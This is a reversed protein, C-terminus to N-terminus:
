SGSRKKVMGTVYTSYEKGTPAIWFTVKVLGRDKEEYILKYRPADPVPDSEFQASHTGTSISYHIVHGEPDTFLARHTGGERDVIMLDDHVIGESEGPKPAYEAHNRRMLVAGNLDEKLSFHGSILGPTAQTDWDGILFRLDTWPDNVPVPEARVPAVSLFIVAIVALIRPIM